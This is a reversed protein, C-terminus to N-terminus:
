QDALHRGLASEVDASSLRDGSNLRDLLSQIITKADDKGYEKIFGDYFHEGGLAHNIETEKNHDQLETFYVVRYQGTYGADRYIEFMVKDSEFAM